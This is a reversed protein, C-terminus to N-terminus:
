RKTLIYSMSDKYKYGIDDYEGSSTRNIEIKSREKNVNLSVDITYNETDEAEIFFRQWFDKFTGIQKYEEVEGEIVFTIICESDDEIGKFEITGTATSETTQEEEGMVSTSKSSGFMDWIGIMWEGIMDETFSDMEESAEPTCSTFTVAMLVAFISFLVSFKKMQKRRGKFPKGLIAKKVFFAKEM